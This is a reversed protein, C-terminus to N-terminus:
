VIDPEPEPDPDPGIGVEGGMEDGEEGEEGHDMGGGTMGACRALRLELDSEEEVMAFRRLRNFVTRWRNNLCLFSVEGDVESDPVLALVLLLCLVLLPGSDGTDSRPNSERNESGLEFGGDLGPELELELELGLEGVTEGEAVIVGELIRGRKLVGIPDPDRFELVGVRALSGEGIRDPGPDPNPNPEPGPDPQRDPGPGPNPGSDPNPNVASSLSSKSVAIAVKLALKVLCNVLAKNLSLSPSPSSSTAVSLGAVPFPPLPPSSSTDLSSM